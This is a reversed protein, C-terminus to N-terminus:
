ARWVCVSADVYAVKFVFLVLVSFFDEKNFRTRTSSTMSWSRYTWLGLALRILTLVSFDTFRVLIFAIIPNPIVWLVGSPEPARCSTRYLGYQVLFTLMFLDMCDTTPGVTFFLTTNRGASDHHVVEHSMRRGRDEIQQTVEPQQFTVEPHFLIGVTCAGGCRCGKIKSQGVDASFWCCFNELFGTSIVFLRYASVCVGDM